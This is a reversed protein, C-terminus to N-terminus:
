RGEYIDRRSLGGIIGLPYTKLKIEEGSKTKAETTKERLWADIQDKSFRYSRYGIKIAPIEGKRAKRLVTERNLRIYQAVEDVTLLKEIM